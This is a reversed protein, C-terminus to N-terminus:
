YLRNYAISSLGPTITNYRVLPFPRFRLDWAPANNRALFFADRSNSRSAMIAAYRDAQYEKKLVLARKQEIEMGEGYWETSHHLTAHAFEHDLAYM